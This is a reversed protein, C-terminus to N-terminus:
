LKYTRRITHSALLDRAENRESVDIDGLEQDLGIDLGVILRNGYPSLM